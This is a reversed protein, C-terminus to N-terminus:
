LVLQKLLKLSSKTLRHHDLYIVDFASHNIIELGNLINSVSSSSSLYRNITFDRKLSNRWLTFDKIQCGRPAQAFDMEEEQDGNNAVTQFSSVQKTIM